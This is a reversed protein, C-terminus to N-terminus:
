IRSSTHQRRSKSGTWLKRYTPGCPNSPLKEDIPIQKFNDFDQSQSLLANATDRLFRTTFVKSYWNTGLTRDQHQFPFKAKAFAFEKLMENSWASM